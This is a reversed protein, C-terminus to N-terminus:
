KAYGLARMHGGRSLEIKLIDGKKVDNQCIWSPDSCGVTLGNDFRVIKKDGNTIIGEVKLTIVSPEQKAVAIKGDETEKITDGIAVDVEPFCEYVLGGSCKVELYDLDIDGVEVYDIKQVVGSPTKNEKTCSVLTLIGLM